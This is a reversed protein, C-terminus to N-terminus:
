CCPYSSELIWVRISCMDHWTPSLALLFFCIPINRTLFLKKVGFLTRHEVDDSILIASLGIIETANWYIRQIGTKKPRSFAVIQNKYATEPKHMIVTISICGGSFVPVVTNGNKESYTEQLALPGEALIGWNVPPILFGANRYRKM